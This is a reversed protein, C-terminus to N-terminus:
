GVVRLLSAVLKASQRVSAFHTHVTQRLSNGSLTAAAIQVRAKQVQTWCALWEAVSGGKPLFSLSIPFPRSQQVVAELFSHDHLVAITRSFAFARICGIFASTHRIVLITNVSVLKPIVTQM